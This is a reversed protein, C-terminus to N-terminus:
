IRVTIQNVVETVSDTSPNEFDRLVLNLQWRFNPNFSHAIQGTVVREADDETDRNADLFDFRAAPEWGNKFRVIGEAYWGLFDVPDGPLLGGASSWSGELGWVVFTETGQTGLTDTDGSLRNASLDAGLTFGRIPVVEVRGVVQKNRDTDAPTNLTTGNFLGAYLTAPFDVEWLDVTAMAGLDRSSVRLTRELFGNVRSREILNLNSSPMVFEQYSVPRKFQGATL